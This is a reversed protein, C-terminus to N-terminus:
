GDCVLGMWHVLNYLSMLEKEQSCDCMKFCTHRQIDVLTNFLIPGAAEEAM